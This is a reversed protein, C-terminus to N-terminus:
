LGGGYLLYAAGAREGGEDNSPAGVLVDARGDADVDGAGAIAYAYDDGGEGVFTVDALSLDVTGTVPGLALYASEDSGYHKSVLVDDHGNADVDGAAAVAFGVEESIDGQFEAQARSLDFRGTVPGLVLYAAGASYEWGKDNGIAGVLLDDHGDNDVDGAASVAVGALDNPAEGVLEADAESPLDVTGTVPGLVLYASGPDRNGHDGFAGLLLDDRGDADVDGAGSGRTMNEDRQESMLMADALSLDLTGTVPGLVLYTPAESYIEPIVLVDDHGDGDVDGAGAVGAGAYDGVLKADALSLDFTGTVPGLVLYAAGAADRDGYAGPAGVLVDDHGDRDVDGAGAIAGVYDSAEEGVLKADALSLDLTGTVPGLVLYAAGAYSGGEDDGVAGVLLDDRGDGDVDGAGAVTNGASDSAAEGVLKADAWSLDITVGDEVRVENTKTVRTTAGAGTTGIISWTFTTDGEALLSSWENGTLVVKYTRLRAGTDPGGKPIKVFTTGSVRFRLTECDATARFSFEQGAAMTPLPVTPRLGSIVCAAYAGRSASFLLAGVLLLRM